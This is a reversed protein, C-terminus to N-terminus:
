EGAAENDAPGCRLSADTVMHAGWMGVWAGIGGTLADHSGLGTGGKHFSWAMAVAGVAAGVAGGVKNIRERPWNYHSAVATMTDGAVTIAAVPAFVHVDTTAEAIASIGLTAGNILVAPLPQVTTEAQQFHNASHEGMGGNHM